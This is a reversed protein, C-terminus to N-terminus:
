PHTKPTDRSSNPDVMCFDVMYHPATYKCMCVSPEYSQPTCADRITEPLVAQLRPIASSTNEHHLFCTANHRGHISVRVSHKVPVCCMPLQLRHDVSTTQLQALWASARISSLEEHHQCRVAAFDHTQSYASLPAPGCECSCGAQM